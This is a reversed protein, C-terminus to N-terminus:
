PQSSDKVDKKEFDKKDNKSSSLKGKGFPKGNNKMKLIKRFNKALYAVDKEVDDEESSDGTKENITKLALLKSFKHSSM